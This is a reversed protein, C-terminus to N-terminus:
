PSFLGNGGDVMAISADNNVHHGCSQFIEWSFDYSLYRGAKTLIHCKLSSEGDWCLDSLRDDDAFTIEQKL